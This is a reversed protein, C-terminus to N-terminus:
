GSSPTTSASTTTEQQEQLKVLAPEIKGELKKLRGKIDENLKPLSSAFFDVNLEVLGVVLEAFHVPDLDLVDQLPQGCALSVVEAVLTRNTVLLPQVAKLPDRKLDVVSLQPVVEAVLEAAECWQDWSMPRVQLTVSGVRLEAPKALLDRLSPKNSPHDTM